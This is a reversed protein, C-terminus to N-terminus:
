ENPYTSKVNDFIESITSKFEAKKIRYSKWTIKIPQVHWLLETIRDKLRWVDDWESLKELIDKINFNSSVILIKNKEYLDFIMKEIQNLVIRSSISNLEKLSKLDKFLDDIIIINSQSYAWNQLFYEDTNHSFIINNKSLELKIANLLHSKWLWPKGEIWIIAPEEFHLNNEIIYETLNELWEKAFKQTENSPIYNEFSNNGNITESDEPSYREM